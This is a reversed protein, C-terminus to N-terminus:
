TGPTASVPTEAWIVGRLDGPAFGTAQDGPYREGLIAQIDAPITEPAGHCAVCMAGTPLPQIVRAVRGEPTDEVWTGAEVEAAPQSGHEGLWTTVWQPGQNAPNRLRVSSRGVSVGEQNLSATIEQARDACVNVGAVPGGEAVAAQLESKLAKGLEGTAAQARQLAAQDAAPDATPAPAPKACALTLLLALM